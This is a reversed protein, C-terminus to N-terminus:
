KLILLKIMIKRSVKLMLKLQKTRDEVTIEDDKIKDLTKKLDYIQNNCDNIYSRKRANSEKLVKIEGQLAETQYNLENM